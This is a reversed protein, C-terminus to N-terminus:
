DHALGNAEASKESGARQAGAGKKGLREVILPPRGPFTVLMKLTGGVSEVYHQLTSVLMDDRKEIRSIAGQGVGMAVALDDQTYRAAKRLEKLTAVTDITQIRPQTKSVDNRKPKKRAPKAAAAKPKRPM